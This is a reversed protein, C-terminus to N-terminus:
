GSKVLKALYELLFIKPAFLVQVLNFLSNLFLGGVILSFVISTLIIVGQAAGDDETQKWFKKAYKIVICFLATSVLVMLSNDALKWHVLQKLVDPAQDIVFLKTSKLANLLELAFDKGIQEM